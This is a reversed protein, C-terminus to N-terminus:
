SKKNSKPSEQSPITLHDKTSMPTGLYDPHPLANKKVNQPQINLQQAIQTNPPPLTILVHHCLTLMVINPIEMFVVLDLVVEPMIDGLEPHSDVEVDWEVDKFSVM